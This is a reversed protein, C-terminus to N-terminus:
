VNDQGQIGTLFLVYINVFTLLCSIRYFFSFLNTPIPPLNSIKASSGPYYLDDYYIKRNMVTAKDYFTFCGKATLLNKKNQDKRFYTFYRQLNLCKNYSFHFATSSLCMTKAVLLSRSPWKKFNNKLLVIDIIRHMLLQELVIKKVCEKKHHVNYILCKTLNM